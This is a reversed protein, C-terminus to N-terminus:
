TLSELEITVNDKVTILNEAVFGKLISELDKEVTTQTMDYVTLLEIIISDLDGNKVIGQWIIRASDNLTYYYGNDLNVLVLENEVERWVVNNHVSFRETGKLKM